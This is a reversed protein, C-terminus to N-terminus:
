VLRRGIELLTTQIWESCILLRVYGLTVNSKVDGIESSRAICDLIVLPSLFTMSIKIKEREGTFYNSLCVKRLKSM